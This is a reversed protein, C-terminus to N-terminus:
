DEEALEIDEEKQRYDLGCYRCRVYVINGLKGLFTFNQSGCICIQMLDGEKKHIEM